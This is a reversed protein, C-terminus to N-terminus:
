FELRLSFQAVRADDAPVASSSPAKNTATIQGFNSANTVINLVPPGFNPHNFVNFADARFKMDVKDRVIPFTKALGADLFFAGPGRVINRQGYELGIPGRFESLVKAAGAAGGKFGYVTKTKRDVNVQVKLDAPNGTFIAPAQNDFSALYASSYVPLALGTRYTPLGSLSWGGIIQDLWM